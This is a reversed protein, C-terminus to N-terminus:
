HGDGGFGRNGFGPRLTRAIAPARVSFIRRCGALRIVLKSNCKLSSVLQLPGYIFDNTEKVGIQRSSQAFYGEGSPPRLADSVTQPWTVMEEDLMEPSWGGWTMSRGGVAFILGAYNLAPHYVWPVRLDPSGGMFPMNQVHEPLVFPGAELVLIRRSRTVDALFLHEAMVAGFTGGGIIIVDFDRKHGAVTQAASDFAEQLTNCLFRGMNDLTFSTSESGLLQAM